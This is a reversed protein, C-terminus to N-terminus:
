ASIHIKEYYETKYYNTIEVIIHLARNTLRHLATQFYGEAQDM